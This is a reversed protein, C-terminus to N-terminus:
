TRAKAVKLLKDWKERVMAISWQPGAMSVAIRRGVQRGLKEKLKDIRRKGFPKISVIKRHILDDGLSGNRLM